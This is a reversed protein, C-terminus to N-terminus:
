SPVPPAGSPASGPPAPTGDDSTKRIPVAKATTEGAGSADDTIEPGWETVLSRQKERLTTMRRQSTMELVAGVLPPTSNYLVWGIASLGYIVLLTFPDLIIDAAHRLDHRGFWLEMLYPSLGALNLGGVCVFRMRSESRDIIRAVITPLGGVLLVVLTAHAIIAVMMGVFWWLMSAMFGGGKASKKTAGRSIKKAKKAM